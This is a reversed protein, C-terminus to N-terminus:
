RPAVAVRVIRVLDRRLNDNRTDCGNGDVDDFSM